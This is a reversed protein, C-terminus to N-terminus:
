GRSRGVARLREVVPGDAYRVAFIRGHRRVNRLFDVLVIARHQLTPEMSNGVIEIVRCREPSVGHRKLWSTRFTLLNARFREFIGMM